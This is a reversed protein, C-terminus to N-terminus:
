RRKLEAEMDTAHRVAERKSGKRLARCEKPKGVSTARNWENVREKSSGVVARLLHNLSEENDLRAEGEASLVARSRLTDLTSRLDHGFSADRCWKANNHHLM